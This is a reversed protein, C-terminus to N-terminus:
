VSRADSPWLIMRVKENDDECFDLVADVAHDQLDEFTKFHKDIFTAFRNKCDYSPIQALTILHQHYARRQIDAGFSPCPRVDALPAVSSSGNRALRDNHELASHVDQQRSM